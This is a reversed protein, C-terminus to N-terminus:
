PVVDFRFGDMFRFAAKSVEVLSITREHLVDEGTWVTVIDIKEGEGVLRVVLDYFAQTAEVDEPDEEFWDQPEWFEPPNQRDWNRFHCSCGGYRCELFWRNPFSLRLVAAEQEDPEVPQLRFNLDDM